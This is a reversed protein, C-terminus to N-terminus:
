LKLGFNEVKKKKHKPKVKNPKPSPNNITENVPADGQLTKACPIERLTFKSCLRKKVSLKTALLMGILVAEGHNIKRSFNSQFGVSTKASHGKKCFHM